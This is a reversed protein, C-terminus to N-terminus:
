AHTLPQVYNYRDNQHEIGFNCLVDFIMKNYRETQINTRPLYAAITMVRTGLAVCEANFFKGAFQPETDTVIRDPIGYPM